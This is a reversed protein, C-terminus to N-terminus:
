VPEHRPTNSIPVNKVFDEAVGDDLFEKFEGDGPVSMVADGPSAYQPAKWAEGHFDKYAALFLEEGTLKKRKKDKGIIGKERLLTIKRAIKQNEAQGGSLKLARMKGQPNNARNDNEEELTALDNNIFNVWHKLGEDFVADKERGDLPVIGRKRWKTKIFDAVRDSDAIFVEGPYIKERYSDYIITQTKITANLFENHRGRRIQM